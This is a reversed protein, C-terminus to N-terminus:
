PEVRLITIWEVGTRQPGASYQISSRGTGSRITIRMPQKVSSCTINGNFIKHSCVMDIETQIDRFNRCRISRLCVPSKDNIGARLRYFYQNERNLRNSGPQLTVPRRWRRHTQKWVPVPHLNLVPGILGNTREPHKKSLIYDPPSVKYFTPLGPPRERICCMARIQERGPPTQLQM